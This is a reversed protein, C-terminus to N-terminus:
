VIEEELHLEGSRDESEQAGSGEDAGVLDGELGNIVNLAGDVESGVVVLVEEVGDSNVAGLVDGDVERLLKDAVEVGDGSALLVDGAHQALDLEAAPQALGVKVDGGDNVGIILGVDLDHVRGLGLAGHGATVVEGAVVGVVEGIVNLGLDSLLVVDDGDETLTLATGLGALHLREDRGVKVM